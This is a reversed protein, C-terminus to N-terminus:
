QFHQRLHQVTPRQDTPIFQRSFPHSGPPEVKWRHPTLHFLRHSLSIATRTGLTGSAQIEGWPLWAQAFPVWLAVWLLILSLKM